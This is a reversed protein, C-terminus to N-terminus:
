QTKSFDERVGLANFGPMDLAIGGHDLVLARTGLLITFEGRRLLLDLNRLVNSTGFTRTLGRVEVM